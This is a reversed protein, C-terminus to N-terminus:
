KFLSVSGTGGGTNDLGGGGQVDVSDTLLGLYLTGHSPGGTLRESEAQVVAVTLM